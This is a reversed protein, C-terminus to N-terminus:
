TCNSGSDINKETENGYDYEVNIQYTDSSNQQNEKHLLAGNLKEEEYKLEKDNYHEDGSAYEAQDYENQDAFTTHEIELPLEHEIHDENVGSNKDNTSVTQHFYTNARAYIVQQIDIILLYTEETQNCLLELFRLKNYYFEKQFNAMKRENIEEKLKNKLYEIEQNKNELQLKMKKNQEILANIDKSSHINNDCSASSNKYVSSSLSDRSSYKNSASVRTSLNVTTKKAMPFEKINTHHMGKEHKISRSNISCSVNNLTANGSSSIRANPICSNNLTASNRSLARKQTHTGGGIIGTSGGKVENLTNGGQFKLYNLDVKAWEPLNSNLQKYDGKEGVICIKRREIPDYNIYSESNYDIIREYFAKFWQLFELNDQYKGKILKDVDMQKKIGIKSFVSQILKYNIICEYEMKALWKAKNLVSKNPFLIDLLQIYIAGNSCQEIKTVNLKLTKNIWDILEKRSVFFAGEMIGVSGIERYDTM